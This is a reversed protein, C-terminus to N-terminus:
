HQAVGTCVHVQKLRKEELNILYIYRSKLYCFIVWFTYTSVSIINSIFITAVSLSFRLPPSPVSRRRLDTLSALLRPYLTQGAISDFNYKEWCDSNGRAGAKGMDM